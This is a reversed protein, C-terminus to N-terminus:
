RVDMPAKTKFRIGDTNANVDEDLTARQVHVESSIYGAETGLATGGLSLAAIAAGISVMRLRSSHAM